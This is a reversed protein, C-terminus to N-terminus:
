QGHYPILIEKLFAFNDGSFQNVYQIEKQPIKYFYSLRFLTDTAPAVKHVIFKGAPRDKDGTVDRIEVDNDM